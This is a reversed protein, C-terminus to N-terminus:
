PNRDILEPVDSPLRLHRGTQRGAQWIYILGRLKKAYVGKIYKKHIKRKGLM